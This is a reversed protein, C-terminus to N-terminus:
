PDADRQGCGCFVGGSGRIEAARRPIRDRLLALIRRRQPTHQQLFASNDNSSLATLAWDTIKYGTVPKPTELAGPVSLAMKMGSGRPAMNYRSVWDLFRRTVAPMPPLDYKAIVSKLKQAPINEASGGWVVGPVERNGLPVTLYDGVSVPLGAPIIYSYAKDVPYPILVSMVRANDASEEPQNSELDQFLSQM